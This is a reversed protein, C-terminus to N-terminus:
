ETSIHQISERSNKSPTDMSDSINSTFESESTASTERRSIQEKCDQQDFQGKNPEKDEKIRLTPPHENKLHKEFLSKSYIKKTCAKCQFFGDKNRTFIDLVFEEM